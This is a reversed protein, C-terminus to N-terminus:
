EIAAGTDPAFFRLADPVLGFEVPDGPQLSSRGEQHVALRSGPPTSASSRRAASRRSTRSRAACRAPSDRGRGM